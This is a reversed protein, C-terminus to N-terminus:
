QFTLTQAGLAASSKVKLKFGVSSDTTSVSDGVLIIGKPLTTAPTITVNGTFGGTRAINATVKVKGFSTTVTPQAFSFSFDPGTPIAVPSYKVLFADNRGKRERQFAGPTTPFTTGITAVGAVFINGQADVAISQPLTFG